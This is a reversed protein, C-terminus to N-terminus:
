EDTPKIVAYNQVERPPIQSIGKRMRLNGNELYQELFHGPKALHSMAPRWTDILIQPDTDWPMQDLNLTIFSGGWNQKEIMANPTQSFYENDFYSTVYDSLWTFMGIGPPGDRYYLRDYTRCSYCFRNLWEDLDSHWPDEEYQHRFSLSAYDPKFAQVVSQSWKLLPFYHKKSLKPNFTITVFPRASYSYYGSYKAIKNRKLYIYNEYKREPTTSTEICWERDYEKIKRESNSASEPAFIGDTELAQLLNNINDTKSLNTPGFLVLEIRNIPRKDM